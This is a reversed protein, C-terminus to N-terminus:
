TLINVARSIVLALLIFGTVAQYGMLLKGRATLPMVDTPSFAMMNSLSFYAYDVFGPKWGPHGPGGDEQPLRFDMVADDRLGATRRAVPGGRDLEWYVLGFAIVNTVWVQLTTLLVEPGNARGNLLEGITLIVTVQNLATLGVAIGISLWRSWTTETSIRRPNLLVLPVFLLGFAVPIIWRPIFQIGSPLLEYLTIAIVLAAFTPWRREHVPPTSTRQTM